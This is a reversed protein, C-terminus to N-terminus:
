RCYFLHGIFSDCVWLTEYFSSALLLQFPLRQMEVPGIDDCFSPSFM